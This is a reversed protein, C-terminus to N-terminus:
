KARPIAKRSKIIVGDIDIVFSLKNHQKSISSFSKMLTNLKNM